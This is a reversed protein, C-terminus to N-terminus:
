SANQRKDPRLPASAIRMDSAWALLYEQAAGLHRTFARRAKEGDGSEILDTIREHARLSQARHATSPYQHSTTMMQAWARAQTSWLLELTGILLALTKNGCLSVVAQHYIRAVATFREEEDLVQRLEETLERLRPVVAVDRDARAACLEACLPELQELTTALDEFTTGQSELVMSLTYAAGAPSPSHVEAGGVNGRRVTVLGETELIRMADRVSQRSVKFTAVLDDEKPLVQGDEISGSLIGQRLVAAVEAGVRASRTVKDGLAGLDAIPGLSV